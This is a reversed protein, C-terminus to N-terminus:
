IDPNARTPIFGLTRIFDGLYLTFSLSATSMGCLSKILETICGQYERFEKDAVAHVKENNLANLFANEVDGCMVKLKEKEAITLLLRISISQVVSSYSELHASDIKHGGVMYRAKRRMDEKKINFIM